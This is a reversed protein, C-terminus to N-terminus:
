TYGIELALRAQTRLSDDTGLWDFGNIGLEWHM